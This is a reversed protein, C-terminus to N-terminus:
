KCCIFYHVDYHTNYGRQTHCTSHLVRSAGIFSKSLVLKANLPGMNRSSENLVKLFAVAKGRKGRGNEEFSNNKPLLFSNLMPEKMLRNCYGSMPIADAIGGKNRQRRELLKQIYSAATSYVKATYHSNTQM